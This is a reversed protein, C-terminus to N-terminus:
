DNGTASGPWDPRRIGVEQKVTSEGQRGCWGAKRGIWTVGSMPIRVRRFGLRNSQDPTVVKMRSRYEAVSSDLSPGTGATDWSATLPKFSSYHAPRGETRLISVSSYRGMSSFFSRLRPLPPEKASLWQEGGRGCFVGGMRVASDRAADNLM